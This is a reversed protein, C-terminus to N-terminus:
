PINRDELEIISVSLEDVDIGNNEAVFRKSSEVARDFDGITKCCASFGMLKEGRLNCVEYKGLIPFMFM